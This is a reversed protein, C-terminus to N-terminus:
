NKLLAFRDKAWEELVFGGLGRNMFSWSHIVCYLDCVAHEDESLGWLRRLESGYFSAQPGIDLVVTTEALSLWYLADGYCVEDLDVIGQLEGDEIIVNKVTLDDLFCTPQVEDFYPKWRAVEALVFDPCGKSDREIVDTWSAFLGPIKMPTWGFGEGNPLSTAKREIDVIQAALGSMQESSMEGLVHGLDRGPIKALLLYDFDDTRGRKLVTPVPIDSARLVDIHHETHDFAGVETRTKLIFDGSDARVEFTLGAHGYPQHVVERVSGVLEKALQWVAQTRQELVECRSLPSSSM